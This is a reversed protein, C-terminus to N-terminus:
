NCRRGRMWGTSGRRPRSWIMRRPRLRNCRRKADRVLRVLQDREQRVEETLENYMDATLKGLKYDTKFRSLAGELGEYRRRLAEVHVMREKAQESMRLLVDARFAGKLPWTANVREVVFQDLTETKIARSACSASGSFRSAACVYFRSGGSQFGVWSYGCPCKCLGSLLYPSAHTRASQSRSVRPREHRTREVQEWLAPDVIAPLANELRVVEDADKLAVYGHKKKGAWNRRNYVLHGAYIPNRLLSSIYATQWPKGGKTVLGRQNLDFAIARCSKGKLYQDYIYRVNVAEAENIQFTAGEGKEYGYPYVFGPNLGKEANKRKGSWTRTKITSREFDAFSGLMTFFMRGADSTTDVPEQTSRVCCTDEWEDLVLNIIDKVNRSLRDLKYVVVCDVNGSRVEQRLRTLAPRDLNGGSYGNDIFTLDDRVGWGQSLCYYRCSERQIELTHGHGQDETSWRIYVAVQNPSVKGKM